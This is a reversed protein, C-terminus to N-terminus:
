GSGRANHSRFNTTDLAVDQQRLRLRHKQLMLLLPLYKMCYHLLDEQLLLCM